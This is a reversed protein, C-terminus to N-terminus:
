TKLLIGAYVAADVNAGSIVILPKRGAFVEAHALLAGLALAGTPEAKLNINFLLRVAEETLTDSVSIAQTLSKQLIAFNHKGLSITRAGDAITAPERENAIIHGAALSRCGDDGALPEAAFVEVACHKRRLGEIIGATLGGGGMPAVVCDFDRGSEKAEALEEGLTSNGAIVRLDDYASLVDITDSNKDGTRDGSKDGSTEALQRVREARSIKAVDILEVSAGYSKVAEIKVRASSDPMVVTCKKGLMRAACALAAGFNGSSATLLHDSTSNLAACYAARFKFSGTHQFAESAITVDLKLLENLADSSYFTTARVTERVRWLQYDSSEVM